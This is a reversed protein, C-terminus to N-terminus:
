EGKQQTVEDLRKKLNMNEEQLTALTNGLETNAEELKTNMIFMEGIKRTVWDISVEM